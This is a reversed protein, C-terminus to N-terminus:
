SEEGRTGGERFHRLADRLALHARHVRLKVATETTGLVRAADRPSLGSQRTLVFAERQLPSLAEIAGDIAERLGVTAAERPDVRDPVDGSATVRVRARKRKRADDLFVNRAIAMLWPMVAAGPIYGARARHLKMFTTQCLDDARTRDRTMAMQFAFVRGSTQAYLADFAELDGAIYRAMLTELPADTATSSMAAVYCVDPVVSRAGVAPTALSMMTM